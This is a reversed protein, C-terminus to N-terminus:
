RDDTDMGSEELVYCLVIWFCLWTDQAFCRKPEEQITPQAAEDFSLNQASECANEIAQGQRPLFPLPPDGSVRVHRVRKKPPPPPPPRARCLGMDFKSACQHGTALELPGLYSREMAKRASGVLVLCTWEVNRPYDTGVGKPPCRNWGKKTQRQHTSQKNQLNVSGLLDETM